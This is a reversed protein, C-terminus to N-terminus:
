GSVETLPRINRKIAGTDGDIGDRNTCGYRQSLFRVWHDLTAQAQRAEDACQQLYALEADTIQEGIVTGNLTPTTTAVM